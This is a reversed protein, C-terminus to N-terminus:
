TSARCCGPNSPRRSRDPVLRDRRRRRRAAAIAAPGSRRSSTPSTPGTSASSPSWRARETADVEVVNGGASLPVWELLGPYLEAWAAEFLGQKSFRDKADLILLKSRPKTTKLYHAILSAREYPGPPCRYPNAPVTMVVTGGDPMAELQRRLLETQPGAKWAHPMIEAAAEDYGPLADFRLDIGPALVLATTPSGAHRGRARGGAADAEVAIAAQQVM